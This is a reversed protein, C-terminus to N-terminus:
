LHLITTSASHKMLQCGADLRSHTVETLLPRSLFHPCACSAFVSRSHGEGHRWAVSAQCRTHSIRDVNGNEKQSKV